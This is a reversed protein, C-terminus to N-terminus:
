AGQSSLRPRLQAVPLQGTAVVNALLFMKTIYAAPLKREAPSQRSGYRLKKNEHPTAPGHVSLAPEEVGSGATAGSLIVGLTSNHM